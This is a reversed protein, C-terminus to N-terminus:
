KKIKNWFDGNMHSKGDKQTKKDKKRKKKTKKQKKPQNEVWRELFEV